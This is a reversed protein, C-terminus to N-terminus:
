PNFLLLFAVWLCMTVMERLKGSKTVTNMYEGYLVLRKKGGLFICPSIKSATLINLSVKSDKNSSNFANVTTGGCV